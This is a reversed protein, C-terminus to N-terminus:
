CNLFVPGHLIFVEKGKEGHPKAGMSNKIFTSILLDM